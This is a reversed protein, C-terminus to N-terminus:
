VQPQPSIANRNGRPILCFGKLACLPFTHTASMHPHCCDAYTLLMGTQGKQTITLEYLCTYHIDLCKNMAHKNVTASHSHTHVNLRRSVELLARRAVKAKRLAPHTWCAWTLCRSELDLKPLWNGPESGWSGGGSQTGRRCVCFLLKKTKLSSLVIYLVSLM